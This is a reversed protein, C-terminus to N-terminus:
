AMIKSVARKIKDIMEQFCKKSTISCTFKKALKNNYYEIYTVLKCALDEKSCFNDRKLVRKTLGSFWVEVPNLWSCHTPTYVLRIRYAASSLYQM